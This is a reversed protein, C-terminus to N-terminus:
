LLSTNHHCPTLCNEDLIHRVSATGLRLEELTSQKGMLCDPLALGALGLGNMNLIRLGGQVTKCLATNQNNEPTAEYGFTGSMGANGTLEVVQATQRCCIKCLTVHVHPLHDPELRVEPGACDGATPPRSTLKAACPKTPALLLAAHPVQLNQLQAFSDFMKKLDARMNPNNSIDIESLARFRALQDVPFNGGLNWGNMNFQTLQGTPAMDVTSLRVM